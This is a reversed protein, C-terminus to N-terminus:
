RELMCHPLQGTFEVEGDADADMLAHTQMLPVCWDM